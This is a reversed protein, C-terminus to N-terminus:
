KQDFRVVPVMAPVTPFKGELVTATVGDAPLGEVNSQAPAHMRPERLLTEFQFSRTRSAAWTFRLDQEGKKVPLEAYYADGPRYTVPSGGAFTYVISQKDRQPEGEARLTVRTPEGGDAKQHVLVLPGAPRVPADSLTDPIRVRIRRPDIEFSTRRLFAATVDVPNEAAPELLQNVYGVLSRWDALTPSLLYEGVRPWDAPEERGSTNLGKLKDLILRQGDRTMQDVVRRLQRELEPRVADPFDIPTWKAFDPYTSKLAQWRRSALEAVNGEAPAPALPARAPDSGILGLATSLDRLRTLRDRSAEWDTRARGVDDFEHAPGRAPDTRPFPPTKESVEVSRVRQEWEPTLEAAAMLTTARNKLTFYFQTLKGVADRLTPIEKTLLRDRERMAETGAWEGQYPAPPALRTLRQEIQALEALSRARSPPPVTALDDRLRAYAHGEDLRGQVFARLPEPLQGFGPDTQIALWERLRRDLGEGLREAPTAGEAARLMEVRDELTLEVPDPTTTFFVLGATLMAALFGTAGGVTWLLRKRARRTRTRYTLADAFAAHFLEAVGHPEKPQAAADTLGPRRVATARVDLNLSGFALLNGDNALYHQFRRAVETMREEIRAEWMSRSITDRALLDCKTLVLFVPLGGVAHERQRYGELHGLFRRFERFDAEIQDHPASADVALILVDANLVAAALTGPRAEKELLRKRTLYDNAARGDCDYLVAPFGARGSPAFRVPYPVIENQTEVLREEYLQNRLEGLGHSMDTLQGHLARSQTHSCQALAGLLSSKGADPMGFLVIRVASPDHPVPPAPPPSLPTTM